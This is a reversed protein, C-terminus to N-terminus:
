ISFIASSQWFCFFVKLYNPLAVEIPFAVTNHEASSEREFELTKIPKSLLVSKGFLLSNAVAYDYCLSIDFM